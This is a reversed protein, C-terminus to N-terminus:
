VCSSIVVEAHFIFLRSTSRKHISLLIPLELKMTRDKLLSQEDDIDSSMCITIVLRTIVSNCDLM